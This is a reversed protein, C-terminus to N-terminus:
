KNNSIVNYWHLKYRRLHHCTSYGVVTHVTLRDYKDLNQTM